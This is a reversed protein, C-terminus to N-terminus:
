HPIRTRQKQSGNNASRREAIRAHDRRRRGQFRLFAGCARRALFGTRRGTNGLQDHSTIVMLVKM